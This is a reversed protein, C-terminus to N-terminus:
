TRVQKQLNLGDLGFDVKGFFKKLDPRGIKKPHDKRIKSGKQSRSKQKM